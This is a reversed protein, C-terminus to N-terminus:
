NFTKASLFTQRANDIIKRDISSDTSSVISGIVNEFFGERTKSDDQEHSHKLYRQSVLYVITRVTWINKKNIFQERAKQLLGEDIEVDKNTNRQLTYALKLKEDTSMNSWSDPTIYGNSMGVYMYYDALVPPSWIHPLSAFIDKTQNLIHESVRAHKNTSSNIFLFLKARADPSIAPWNEARKVYNSEASVIAIYEALLKPSFHGAYWVPLSLAKVQTDHYHQWLNHVQKEVQEESMISLLHNELYKVSRTLMESYRHVLKTDSKFADSEVVSVKLFEPPVRNIIVSRCYESLLAWVQDDIYKVDLADGILKRQYETTYSALVASLATTDYTSTGYNVKLKQEVLDRFDKDRKEEETYENWKLAAKVDTIVQNNYGKLPKSFDIGYGRYKDVFASWTVSATANNRLSWEYEGNKKVGLVCIHFNDSEPINKFYLWYFSQSGGHDRFRYSDYFNTLLTTNSICFNYPIGTKKTLVARIRINAYRDNGNLITLDDNEFLIDEDLWQTAKNADRTKATNEREARQNDVFNEFAELTAFQNIPHTQQMNYRKYDIYKLLIDNGSAGDEFWKVCHKADFDTFLPKDKDSSTWAPPFITAMDVRQRWFMAADGIRMSLTNYAFEYWEEDKFPLLFAQIDKIGETILRYRQFILESEKRYM